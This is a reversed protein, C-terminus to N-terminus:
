VELIGRDEYVSPGDEEKRLMAGGAANMLASIGDIRKRATRKNLKINDAPDRVVEANSACWSMVPNPCIRMKGNLLRREIEKLAPSADKYGQGYPVCQCIEDRTLNQVLYASKWRDYDLEQVDFKEVLEVVEVEIFDFDTASGPTSRLAGMKEWRSYPVKDSKERKLIDDAPCWFWCFVRWVGDAGPFIAVLASLDNVEALDLGLWCKQGYFDEIRLSKDEAAKWRVSDIWREAANSWVNLQKVMFSTMRSPQQIAQACKTEM